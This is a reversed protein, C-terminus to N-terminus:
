KKINDFEACNYVNTNMIFTKTPGFIAGENERTRSSVIWYANGANDNDVISNEIYRKADEESYLSVEFKTKYLFTCNIPQSELEILNESGNQNSVFNSCAAITLALFGLLIKNM